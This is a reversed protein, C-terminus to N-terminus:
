KVEKLYILQRFRQRVQVTPIRRHNMSIDSVDTIMCQVGCRSASQIVASFLGINENGFIVVKEYGVDPHVPKEEDWFDGTLPDKHISWM